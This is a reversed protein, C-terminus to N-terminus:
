NVNDTVVEEWTLANGWLSLSIVSSLSRVTYKKGKAQKICSVVFNIKVTLEKRSRGGMYRIMNLYKDQTQQIMWEYFLWWSTQLVLRRRLVWSNLVLISSICSPLMNNFRWELISCPSHCVGEQRDTIGTVVFLLDKLLLNHLVKGPCGTPMRLVKQDRLYCKVAPVGMICAKSSTLFNFVEGEFDQLVFLTQKARPLETQLVAASVPFEFLQYGSSQKLFIVSLFLFFCDFPLWWLWNFPLCVKLSMKFDHDGCVDQGLLCVSSIKDEAMSQSLCEQWSTNKSPLSETFSIGPSRTEKDQRHWQRLSCPLSNLVIALFSSSSPPYLSSYLLSRSSSFCCSCRTFCDSEFRVRERSLSFLIGGM